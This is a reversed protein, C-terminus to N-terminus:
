IPELSDLLAQMRKTEQPTVHKAAPMATAKKKPAAKKVEAKRIDEASTIGLEKYSRLITDMYAWTLKGTNVATKDYAYLLVEDSFGLEAWRTVYKKETESAKHGSVGLISRIHEFPSSDGGSDASGKQSRIYENAGSTTNIGAREWEYATNEIVKISPRKADGYKERFQQEKHHMLVMLVDAPLSLESYLRTLISLESSSLLRGIITEADRTLANFESDAERPKRRPAPSAPSQREEDATVTRAPRRRSQEPADDVIDSSVVLGSETLKGLLIETRRYSLSLTEAIDTVSVQEASRMVFLYVLALEGDGTKILTDADAAPISVIKQKPITFKPM